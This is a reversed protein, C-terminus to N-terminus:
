DSISKTEKPTPPANLAKGSAEIRSSGSSPYPVGKKCWMSHKVSWLFISLFLLRFRTLSILPRIIADSLKCWLYHFDQVTEWIEGSYQYCGEVEAEEEGQEKEEGGDEERRARERWVGEGVGRRRRWTLVSIGICWKWTVGWFSTM